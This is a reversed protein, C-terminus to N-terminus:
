IQKKRYAFGALAILGTAFLLATEPLPVSSVTYSVNFVSKGKTIADTFYTTFAEAKSTLNEITVTAYGGTLYAVAIVPLSGISSLTGISSASASVLSANKGLSGAASLLGAPLSSASLTFVAETDAAVKGTATYDLNNVPSGIYSGSAGADLTGLSMNVTAAQATPAFAAGGILAAAFLATFKKMPSEKVLSFSPSKHLAIINTKVPKVTM